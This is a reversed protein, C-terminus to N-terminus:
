TFWSKSVAWEGATLGSGVATATLSQETAECKVGRLWKLGVNHRRTGM